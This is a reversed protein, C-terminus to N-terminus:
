SWAKLDEVTDIDDPRGECAVEAVLEPRGQLLGNAAQAGTTPLLPWVERALRVPHGRRGGDYVGIAVPRETCAAVARWASPPIGPQDGLGVVVADHGREDALRIAVQLSTSMGEEWRDNVVAGEIGLDVAGAVVILDDLAAATAHEVAWDILRKGRVVTLLKPSEGEFRTGAGAALIVAATSLRHLRSL